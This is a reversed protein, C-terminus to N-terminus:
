RIKSGAISAASTSSSYEIRSRAAPRDRSVLSRHRSGRSGQMRRCASSGTNLTVADADGRWVFTCSGGEVLPFRHAALFADV